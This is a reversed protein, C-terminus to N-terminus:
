TVNNLLDIRWYANRNTTLAPDTTDVATTDGYILYMGPSTPDEILYPTDFDYLGSGLPSETFVGPVLDYLGPSSTETLASAM